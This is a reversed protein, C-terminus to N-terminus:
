QCYICINTADTSSLCHMTTCTLIRVTSEFIPFGYCKLCSFIHRLINTNYVSYRLLSFCVFLRVFLGLFFGSCLVGLRIDRQINRLDVKLNDQSRTYRSLPKRFYDNLIGKFILLREKILTQPLVIKKFRTIVETSDSIHYYYWIWKRM